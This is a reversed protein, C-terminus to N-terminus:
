RREFEKLMVNHLHEVQAQLKDVAKHLGVLYSITVGLGAGVAFQFWMTM